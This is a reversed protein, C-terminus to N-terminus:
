LWSFFLFSFFLLTGQIATRDWLAGWHVPPWKILTCEEQRCTAHLKYYGLNGSRCLLDSWCCDSHKHSPKTVAHNSGKKEGASEPAPSHPHSTATSERDTLWYLLLQKPGDPFIPCSHKAEESRVAKGRKQAVRFPILFCEYTLTNSNRDWDRWPRRLEVLLLM